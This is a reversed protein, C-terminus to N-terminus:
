KSPTLPSVSSSPSACFIPLGHAYNSTGDIPDVIWVRGPVSANGGQEEGLVTDSPFATAIQERIMTEIETPNLGALVEDDTM